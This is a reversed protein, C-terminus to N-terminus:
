QMFNSCTISVAVTSKASINIVKILQIRNWTVQRSTFTM